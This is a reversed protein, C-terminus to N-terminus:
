AAQGTAVQRLVHEVRGAVDRWSFEQARSAAARGLTEAHRRDVLLETLAEAVAVHDAPDVLLGTVGHIIADRAGGVKGAVAPLQHAGAELYAIGFGEGGGRPTLRSPMAFVHARDLWIDREADSVSGTFRVHHRVGFCDAMREYAPRLPGDGVAAWRVEPVRARVLPLARLIVDHGKYREALRSVTVVLPHAARAVQRSVPTDVGPPIRFLADDNISTRVLSATYKSIAIVAAAHRAAFRALHPRDTLEVGYVYQVYPVGLVRGIAYAAPSTVIHANLVVDPRFALARSIAKAYLRALGLKSGAAPSGGRTLVLTELAWHEVLRHVLTQIGGYAPWSDATLVMVRFPRKVRARGDVLRAGHRAM